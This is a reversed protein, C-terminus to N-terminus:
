EPLRKLVLSIQGRHHAQHEMVHFWAWHNNVGEEIEAAFWEDDKSRLGELTKARVEDWLELYYSIPKGNLEERAEAGMGGAVDWFAEEEETMKRGELTEAQYYVEIAALHMIMAGISNAEDDFLFDTESQDLDQIESEIRNKLDELMAVMFGIDPTYGEIPEISYQSKGSLSILILMMFSIIAPCTKM